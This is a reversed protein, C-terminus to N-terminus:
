EGASVVTKLTYRILAYEQPALTVPTTLVTRDLMVCVRDNGTGAANLVIVNQTYGIEGITIDAGGIANTNTVMIDYRLYPNDYEDLGNVMGLQFQLGSRIKNELYYDDETAATTGSGFHIGADDNLRCDRYVAYPFTYYDNFHPSLSREANQITVCPLGAAIAGGRAQLVMAMLNKFNKTLM